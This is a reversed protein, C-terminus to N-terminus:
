AVGALLSVGKSNIPALEMWIMVCLYVLFSTEKEKNNQAKVLSDKSVSNLTYISAVWKKRKRKKRKKKREETSLTETIWGHQRWVQSGGGAPYARQFTQSAKMTYLSNEKMMQVYKSQAKLFATVHRRHVCVCESVHLHVCVWTHVCECACVGKCECAICEYVQTHVYMCVVHVCVWCMCKCVSMHECM